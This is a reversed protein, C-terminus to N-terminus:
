VFPAKRAAMGAGLRLLPFTGNEITTLLPREDPYTFEPRDLYLSHDGSHSAIEVIYGQQRLFHGLYPASGPSLGIFPRRSARLVVRDGIVQQYVQNWKLSPTLMILNRSLITIGPPGSVTVSLEDNPYSETIVQAEARAHWWWAIEDLRAFWVRTSLRQAQALVHSLALECNPIREPHLGITCLEGLAHTRMLLELWIDQMGKTDELALREVLAEDDPLCYPIRILGLDDRPLAPYLAAPATDYFQLVHEYMPTAVETRCCGLGLRSQQRQWTVLM